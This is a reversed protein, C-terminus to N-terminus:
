ATGEVHRIFPIRPIKTRTGVVTVPFGLLDPQLKAKVRIDHPNCGLVQAAEAPTIMPKDMAKIAAM